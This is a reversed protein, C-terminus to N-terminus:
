LFLPKVEGRQGSVIRGHLRGILRRLDVGKQRAQRSGTEATGQRHLHAYASGTVTDSLLEAIIERALFVGNAAHALRALILDPPLVM